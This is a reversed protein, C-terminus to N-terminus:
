SCFAELAAPELIRIRKYAVDIWGKSAFQKLTRNVVDRAANALEGIQEQTLGSIVATGKQGADHTSGIRLLTSAIRQQVNPILLDSVTAIAIDMGHSAVKTLARHYRPDSAAIQDLAVLPVHFAISPEVAVFTLNRHRRSLSADYGFWVGSRCVHALRDEGSRRPVKIGFAGGAVGFIGGRFDGVDFVRRGVAFTRLTAKELIVAQFAKDQEALWGCSLVASKASTIDLQQRASDEQDRSKDASLVNGHRGKAPDIFNKGQGM